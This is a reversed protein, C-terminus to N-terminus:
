EAVPADRQICAERNRIGGGRKEKQYQYARAEVGSMAVRVALAGFEALTFEPPRCCRRVEIVDVVSPAFNVGRFIPSSPPDFLLRTACFGGLGTGAATTGVHHGSEM